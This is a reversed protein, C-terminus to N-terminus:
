CNFNYNKALEMDNHLQSCLEQANSFIKQERIKEYLNTELITGYLDGQFGILHIEIKLSENQKFTPCTGISIISKYSLNNVLSIGIYVGIPPMLDHMLEINATPFGLTRGRQKGPVVKGILSFPRGLMLNAQQINGQKIMNRINTSSIRTNNQIKSSIVFVNYNYKLANQQLFPVDGQGKFGFHFNEGVVIAKMGLQQILMQLFSEATTNALKEQFPLLLCYEIGLSELISLKKECPLIKEPAHHTLFLQPHESFTIIVSHCHLIIAQNVVEQIIKQHGVHVGDFMGITVVSADLPLEPFSSLIKM